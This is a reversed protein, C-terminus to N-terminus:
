HLIRGRTLMRKVVSKGIAKALSRCCLQILPKTAGEVLMVAVTRVMACVTATAGFKVTMTDLHDNLYREAAARKARARQMEVYDRCQERASRFGVVNSM